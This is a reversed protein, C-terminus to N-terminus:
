HESCMLLLWLLVELFPTALLHSNIARVQERCSEFMRNM